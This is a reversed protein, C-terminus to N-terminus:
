NETPTLLYAKLLKQPIRVRCYLKGTKGRTYLHDAIQKM